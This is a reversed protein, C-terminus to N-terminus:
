ETGTYQIIHVDEEDGQFNVVPLAAATCLTYTVRGLCAFAEDNNVVILIDSFYKFSWTILMQLWGKLLRCWATLESLTKINTCIGKMNRVVPLKNPTTYNGLCLM